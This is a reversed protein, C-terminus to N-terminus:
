GTVKSLSVGTACSAPPQADATATAYATNVERVSGTAESRVAFRFLGGHTLAPTQFTGEYYRGVPRQVTGIPAAYTITSVGEPTSRYVRFRLTAVPEDLNDHKWRVVIKGGATARASVFTPAAPYGGGAYQGSTGLVFRALASVNDEEVGGKTHRVGVLWVGQALAGTRPLVFSDYIKGGTRSFATAVVQSATGYRVRTDNGSNRYFRYTSTPIHGSAPSFKVVVTGTLPAYSVIEVGTPPSPWPSLRGTLIACGTKENGARDTPRIQFSHGKDLRLPDTTYDWEAATTTTGAVRDRDFFEALRQDPIGTLAATHYLRYSHAGTGNRSFAINFRDGPLTRLYRSVDESHNLAGALLFDLWTRRKARAAVFFPDETFAGAKKSDVHALIVGNWPGTPNMGQVRYGAPSTLGRIDPSQFALPDGVQNGFRRGIEAM